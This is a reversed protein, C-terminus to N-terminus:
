RGKTDGFTLQYGVYCTFHNPGSIDSGAAFLFHHNGTVKFTTALNFALSDDGAEVSATRYILEGGVTLRESIKRMPRVGWYWWDRNGRGPNIWYGGGGPVTWAGWSKQLRGTGAGHM